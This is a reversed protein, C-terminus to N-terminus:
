RTGQMLWSRHLTSSFAPSAKSSPSRSTRRWGSCHSRAAATAQVIDADDPRAILVSFGGKSQLAAIIDAGHSHDHSHSHSFPSHSHTHGHEQEHDHAADDHVHEASNASAQEPKDKADDRHPQTSYRRRESMKPSLSSHFLPKASLTVSDKHFTAVNVNQRLATAASARLTPHCPTALSYRLRCRWATTLVM